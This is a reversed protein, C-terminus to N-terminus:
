ETISCCFIETYMDSYIYMCVKALRYTRIFSASHTITSILLLFIIVADVATILTRKPTFHNCYRRVTSSVNLDVAISSHYDNSLTIRIDFEGNVPSATDEIVKARLHTFLKIKFQM